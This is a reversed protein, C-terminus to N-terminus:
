QVRSIMTNESKKKNNNCIERLSFYINFCATEKKANVKVTPTRMEHDYIDHITSTIKIVSNLENSPNKM